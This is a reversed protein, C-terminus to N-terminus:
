YNQDRECRVLINNKVYDNFIFPYGYYLIEEDIIIIPLWIFDEVTSVERLPEPILNMDETQITVKSSNDVAKKTSTKILKISREFSYPISIYVSNSKAIEKILKIM